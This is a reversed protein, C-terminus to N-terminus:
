EQVNASLVVRGSPTQAKADDEATVLVTFRPATTTAKCDGKLNKDIRLVGENIPEHGAQQVWLVYISAPQSLLSPKALHEVKLTLETNGANTKVDLKAVAGPDLTTTQMIYQKGWALITVLLAMGCAAGVQLSIRRMDIFGGVKTEYM